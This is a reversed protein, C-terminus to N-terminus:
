EDYRGGVLIKLNVGILHDAKVSFLFGYRVSM